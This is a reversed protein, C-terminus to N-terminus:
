AAPSTPASGTFAITRAQRWLVFPWFGLLGTVAIAPVFFRWMGGGSGVLYLVFAAAFLCTLVLFLIAAAALSTRLLGAAVRARRIGACSSLLGFGILALLGDFAVDRGSAAEHLVRTRTFYNVIPLAGILLGLAISWRVVM